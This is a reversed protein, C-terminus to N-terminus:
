QPRLLMVLVRGDTEFSGGTATKADRVPDAPSAYAAGSLAGASAFSQEIFDRETDINPDIHHTVGNDRQDRELGNDHTASGVWLPQGGVMQGSQWVRLHHRELAVM